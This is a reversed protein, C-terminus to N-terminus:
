RREMEYFRKFVRCVALTIWFDREEGESKMMRTPLVWLGTAPQQRAVFWGLARKIQADDDRDFGMLSLSDLSSLLDTFWFPYSFSTWFGPARRDPYKDAQFFRSALLRGAAHAEATKRYDPHAAFARLVMGTVLHSSPKSRDPYALEGQLTEQSFNMRNGATRFPIAWGGDQQRISLLWRFGKAIRPHGAYGAKILLEMMAASYNPSFQSGYVGRFDGEKEQRAFLYDAARQIAPHKKNLSYMEVLHRLVRYTELQNYDEPSRIRRGTVQYKWAGSDLQREVIRRVKELEWLNEPVQEEKAASDDVLDRSALYRIAQNDSHLLPPIPDLRLQERWGQRGKAM